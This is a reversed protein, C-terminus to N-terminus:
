KWSPLDELDILLSSQNKSVRKEICTQCIDKEIEMAPLVRIPLRTPKPRVLSVISLIMFQYKKMKRALANTFTAKANPM